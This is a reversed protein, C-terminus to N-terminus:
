IFLTNNKDRLFFLSNDTHTNNYFKRYYRKIYLRQNIKKRNKNHIERTYIFELKYITKRRKAVMANQNKDTDM